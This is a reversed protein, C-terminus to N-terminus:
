CVFGVLVYLARHVLGLAAGSRLTTFVPWGRVYKKTLREEATPPPPASLPSGAEELHLCIRSGGTEWRKTM